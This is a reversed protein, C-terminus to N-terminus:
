VGLSAAIARSSAPNWIVMAPTSASPGSSTQLVVPIRIERCTGVAPDSNELPSTTLTHVDSSIGLLVVEGEGAEGDGLGDGLGM